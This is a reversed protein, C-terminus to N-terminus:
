LKWPTQGIRCYSTSMIKLSNLVWNFLCIRNQFWPGENSRLFSFILPLFSSCIPSLSGHDDKFKLFLLCNRYFGLTCVVKKAIRLGKLESIYIPIQGSNPAEAPWLERRSLDGDTVWVIYEMHLSTGSFIVIWGPNCQNCPLSFLFDRSSLCTPGPWSTSTFESSHLVSNSSCFWVLVLPFKM